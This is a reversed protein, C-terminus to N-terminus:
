HASLRLADLRVDEPLTCDIQRGGFFRNDAIWRCIQKLAFLYGYPTYHPDIRWFLPTTTERAHKRISDTLDLVKINPALRQKFLDSTRTFDVDKMENSSFSKERVGTSLGLTTRIAEIGKKILGADSIRNEKASDGYILMKHPHIILLFEKGQERAAAYFRNVSDAVIQALPDSLRTDVSSPPVLFRMGKEANFMFTGSKSLVIRHLDSADSDKIESKRLYELAELVVPHNTRPTGKWNTTPCSPFLRILFEPANPFRNVVKGIFQLTYPWYLHSTIRQCGDDQIRLSQFKALIGNADFNKNQALKETLFNELNSRSRIVSDGFDNGLFVSLVIADHKIDQRLKLYYEFEEVPSSGVNAFNVLDVDQFTKELNEVWGFRMNDVAGTGRAFSDGFVLIRFPKAPDIGDGSLGFGFGPLRTTWFRDVYDPKVTVIRRDPKPFIANYKPSFISSAASPKLDQYNDILLKSSSNSIIFYSISESALVVLLCGIFIMWGMM